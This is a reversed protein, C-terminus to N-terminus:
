FALGFNELGFERLFALNLKNLRVYCWITVSLFVVSFGVYTVVKRSANGIVRRQEKYLNLPRSHM